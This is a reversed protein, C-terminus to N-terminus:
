ASEVDGSSVYGTDNSLSSQRRSMRAEHRDSCEYLKQIYGLIEAPLVESDPGEIRSWYYLVRTPRSFQLASEEFDRSQENGHRMMMRLVYYVPAFSLLTMEIPNIPLNAFLNAAQHEPINDGQPSSYLMAMTMACQLVVGIEPCASAPTSSDIFNPLSEVPSELASDTTSSRSSPLAALVTQINAARMGDFFVAKVAVARTHAASSEPAIAIASHLLYDFEHNVNDHSHTLSAVLAKRLQDSSYWACLADIPSRIARDEVVIDMLGHKPDTSETTPRDYLLNYARLLVSDSMVENCDRALLAAAYRPLRDPHGVPLTAHIKQALAWEMNAFCTGIHDFMRGVVLGKIGVGHLVMRCHLAKAMLRSPTRPLLGSAFITLVLRSRSIEVDGGALQADIAIDWAKVRAIEDEGSRGTLWTYTPWGLILRVTYKFWESTLSLWEPIFNHHPIRLVQTSTQWAARRVEIPSALSPPRQPESAAEAKHRPAPKSNFMYTFLLFALISLATFGKIMPFAGGTRCFILFASIFDKPSRLFWWGDLFELPIGFLGRKTSDSKADSQSFGEMIMLGALSGVMLKMPWGGRKTGEDPTDYVHGYHETTQASSARFKKWVDSAPILGQPPNNSSSSSTTEDTAISPSQELAAENSFAEDRRASSNGGQALIKELKLLRQKLSTNEDDLKKNRLELHRIYETAKTLISAKNLKNTPTVGDLDEDDEDIDDKISSSKKAVRLSPVSDRLEAIKENLNARYRKEIINHPRKKPAPKQTEKVKSESPSLDDSYKRKSGSHASELPSRDWLTEGSLRSNPPNPSDPSNSSHGPTPLDLTPQTKESTKGIGLIFTEDGNATTSPSVPYPNFAELKGRGLTNPATSALTVDKLDIMSEANGDWQMWQTWEQGSADARSDSATLTEM